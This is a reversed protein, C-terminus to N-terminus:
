DAHNSSAPKADNGLDFLGKPGGNALDVRDKITLMASKAAAAAEVDHQDRIVPGLANISPQGGIQSLVECAAIRVPTSANNLDHITALEASQGMEILSSKAAEIDSPFAAMYNAVLYAVRSEHLKGFVSLVAHRRALETTPDKILPLLSHVTDPTNWVALAEGAADVTSHDSVPGEIVIKELAAAIRPRRADDPKLEALKLMASRQQQPSSGELDLLAENTADMTKPALKRMSAKAADACFTDNSRVVDALALISKQSGIDGLVAIARRRVRVNRDHLKEIVAPEAPPGVRRLLTAASEDDDGLHDALVNVTLPNVQTEAPAYRLSRAAAAVAAMAGSDGAQATVTAWSGDDLAIFQEFPTSANPPSSVHTVPMDNLLAPETTVAGATSDDVGFLGPVAPMAARTRVWPQRQHPDLAAAVALTVRGGDPTTWSLSTPKLTTGTSAPPLAAATVTLDFTASKPPRIKFPGVSVPDDLTDGASDPVTISTLGTTRLPENLSTDPKASPVTALLTPANNLIATLAAYKATLEPRTKVDDSIKAAQTQVAALTGALTERSNSRLTEPSTLTNAQQTLETIKASLADDTPAAPTSTTETTQSTKSSDAETIPPPSNKFKMAVTVTRSLSDGIASQLGIGIGGLLAAMAFAAGTEAWNLGFSNRMLFVALALGGLIGFLSVAGVFSSTGDSVKASVLFQGIILTSVGVGLLPAAAAGAAKLYASPALSFRLIQSAAYVGVMALPAVIIFFLIGQMVTQVWLGGIPTAARVESAQRGSSYQNFLGIGALTTLYLLILLGSWPDPGPRVARLGNGDREPADEGDEDEDIVPRRVQPARRPLAAPQDAELSQSPATPHQVAAMSASRMMEISDSADDDRFSLEADPSPVPIRTGCKKCTATKGAYQDPVRYRAACSPCVIGIPM